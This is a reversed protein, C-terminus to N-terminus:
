SGEKEAAVGADRQEAIVVKYHDITNTIVAQEHAPFHNIFNYIAFDVGLSWAYGEFELLVNTGLPTDIDGSKRRERLKEALDILAPIGTVIKEELARDYDFLLPMSFRNVFAQNMSRMGEYDPNYNALFQADDHLNITLDLEIIRMQRRKDLGPHFVVSIGPPLANCEDFYILGGYELATVVDTKVMTFSGDDNFKPRSFFTSPDVGQNCSITVLPIKNKACFALVASTKGTGTDGALMVNDQESRAVLFLDLDTHGGPFVRSVYDDYFHMPPILAALPHEATKPTVKRKAPTTTTAM